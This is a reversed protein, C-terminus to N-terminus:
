YGSCISKSYGLIHQNINNTHESMQRLTNHEKLYIRKENKIVKLYSIRYKSSCILYVRKEM